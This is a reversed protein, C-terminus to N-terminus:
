RQGYVDAAIYQGYDQEASDSLPVRQYGGYPYWSYVFPSNGLRVGSGYGFSFRVAYDNDGQNYSFGYAFGPAYSCADDWNRSTTYYFTGYWPLAYYERYVYPRCNYRRFQVVPPAEVTYV